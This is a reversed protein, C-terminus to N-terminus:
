PSEGVKVSSAMFKCDRTSNKSCKGCIEGGGKLHQPREFPLITFNCFINSNTSYELEDCEFIVNYYPTM